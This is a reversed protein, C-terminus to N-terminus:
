WQILFSASLVWKISSLSHLKKIIKNTFIDRLGQLLYANASFISTYICFVSFLISNLDYRHSCLLYHIIFITYKILKLSSKTYNTLTWQINFLTENNYIYILSINFLKYFFIKKVVFLITNVLYLIYLTDQTM